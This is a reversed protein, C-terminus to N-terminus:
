SWRKRVKEETSFLVNIHHGGELQIKQSPDVKLPPQFGGNGDGLNILYMAYGLEHMYQRILRDSRGTQEMLSFNLELVIADVGRALINRAGLLIEAEVGECDIKIFRPHDNILLTDLARGEVMETSTADAYTHLSTYGVDDVAYLKLEPVDSKWLAFRLCAVNNLKNLVHVNHALYKFARLEPEIALVIGDDGVLKSLFCSHFGLCAGADIVFDGPQVFKEAVVIIEAEYEPVSTKDPWDGVPYPHRDFQLAIKKTGWEVDVTM